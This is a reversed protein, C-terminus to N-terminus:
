EASLGEFPDVGEPLIDEFPVYIEQFGDAYATYEYPEFFLVIGEHRLFFRPNSDLAEFDGFYGPVSELHELVVPNLDTLYNPNGELLLDDLELREGTALSFAMSERSDIGHAGGTFSNEQMVINIIGDKNYTVVFTGMISYPPEEATRNQLAAVAEDAYSNVRAEIESNIHAISESDGILVPYQLEISSEGEQHEFVSTQVEVGIAEAATLDVSREANNWVGGIGMYDRLIKFPVYLEGDVELSPYHDTHIRNVSLSTGYSNSRVHIRNVNSGLVYTETEDDYVLEMNLEDRLTTLSIMTNGDLLLGTSPLLEGQYILQVPPLSQQNIAVPQQESIPQQESVPTTAAFAAQQVSVGGLLIGATLVISSRRITKNM